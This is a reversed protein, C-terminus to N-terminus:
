LRIITVTENTSGGLINLYYTGPALLTLDLKVVKTSTEQEILKNGVADALTLLHFEVEDNIQVFVMDRTPNPFVKVLGQNTVNEENVPIGFGYGESAEFCNEDNGVLVSYIGLEHVRLLHKDERVLEEGNRFWQYSKYSQAVLIQDSALRIIEPVVPTSRIEIVFQETSVCGMSDTFEATINYSGPELSNPNFFKVNAEVGSGVFIINDFGKSLDLKNNNNCISIDPTAFPMYRARIDVTFTITVTNGSPDSIEFTNVTLGVPFTSGPPLGAIQTVTVGCNDDGTPIAYTYTADCYGLAIDSPTTVVTPKITDQVTIVASTSDINGNVDTVILYITNAGVESCDFSTKSLTRSAISCNDTSGNDIDAVTVSGAGSADLSVTVNQTLVTPKITDQVTVVASASDINGNVDTVILYITNAGVESCDFSTKSLTRSAISCNDTSGNDVQTATVSGAGSADLSVTLNQNLVTPKITDQVTIVASASDVNGSIDTVVLYVTDFGVMSCDFFTDSITTEWIAWNDTSGNDLQEATMSANGATDLNLTLNKVSVSPSTTDPNTGFDYIYGDRKLLYRTIPQGVNGVMDTVVLIMEFQGDNVSSYDINVVNFNESTIDGSVVIVTDAETAGSNKVTLEYTGGVDVDQINTQIIINGFNSIGQSQINSSTYYSNPYQADKFYRTSKTAVLRSSDDTVQVSMIIHGDLVGSTNIGTLSISDSPFVGTDQIVVGGNLSYIKLLYNLGKCPSCGINANISDVNSANVYDSLIEAHLAVDLAIDSEIIDFRVIEVFSYFKLNGARDKITASSMGWKGPPSGVPLVLDFDYIRWNSDLDPNMDYIDLDPNNMTGNGTQFGHERGLPDRLVFEVTYVGSEYGPYESLDRAVLSIDVRTEGNPAKPNTPEAEITINNLDLEPKVYDPYPTYVYISDRVDKFLSLTDSPRINFDSTDNVFYTDSNNNALDFFNIQPVAYYGSPFWDPITLYQEFYKISNYDEQWNTTDYSPPRGQIQKEYIQALPNSLTPFFFRTISRMMPSNDYISYSAKVAKMYVGNISDSLQANYDSTFYDYVTDLQLDYQWKPPIVDELPNDIFLKWGITSTNELRQNGVQDFIKLQAINWYGSKELKSFTTTGTLVSDLTQGNKTSFYMDHITGVSSVMRCYGGAAGSFSDTQHLYVTVTVEKDASDKGTVETELKTVKGPFTYDPFLNYVTFSLADPILAVYRTGHMIRDRIFEYKQVSVTLLADPNTLYYSISEAMDENPNKLHAYASVFATTQSTSWGSAATPDEFWGGISAWNVRLSDDFSYEWLFHAKEHLILRRLYNLDGSTFAISMWEITNLGTWAIAPATKYKPNRQGNVRRVLYKLGDQKHFGEPLEEFMALIEMKESNFFEQFNSKDENMLDETEQDSKMFRVGFRERAIWDVIDDNSGFEALFNVVAHYLRKSYFKGKIGDTTVIQPNAYTFADMSIRGYKVGNITTIILDSSLVTDSLIFVGTVNEGTEFDVKSGEGFPNSPLSEFMKYLRYSYDSSWTEDDDSLIVGYENRLKISSYDSPVSVTDNLVVIKTPENIYVQTAHGVYSDDDQWTYKFGTGTAPTVLFNVSNVAPYLVTKATSFYYGTADLFVAWEGSDVPFNLSAFTDTNSTLWKQQQIEASKQVIVRISDGPSFGRVNVTLTDQAQCLNSFALLILLIKKM